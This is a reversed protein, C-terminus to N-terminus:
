SLLPNAPRGPTPRGAHSLPAASSRPFVCHPRRASTAASRERRARVVNNKIERESFEASGTKTGRGRVAMGRSWPAPWTRGMTFTHAAAHLRTRSALPLCRLRVGACARHDPARAARRGREGGKKYSGSKRGRWEVGGPRVAWWWARRGTGRRGGAPMWAWWLRGEWGACAWASERRRWGARAQCHCCRHYGPRRARARGASGSWRRRRRQSAALQRPARGPRAGPSPHRRLSIAAVSGGAARAARPM